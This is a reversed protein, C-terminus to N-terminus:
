DGNFAHNGGKFGGRPFAVCWDVLQFDDQEAALRGYPPPQLHGAVGAEVPQVGGKLDRKAPGVAMQVLELHAPVAVGVRAMVKGLKLAVRFDEFRAFESEPLDSRALLVGEPVFVVEAIRPLVLDRDLFDKPGPRSDGRGCEAEIACAGTRRLIAAANPAVVVQKLNELVPFVRLVLGHLFPQAAREVGCGKVHPFGVEPQSFQFPWPYSLSLQALHEHAPVVVLLSWCVACGAENIEYVPAGGGLFVGVGGVVKV